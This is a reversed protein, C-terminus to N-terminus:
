PVADLWERLTTHHAVPAGAALERRLEGLLGSREALVSLQEHRASVFADDGLEPFRSVTGGLAERVCDEVPRRDISMSSEVIALLVAADVDADCAEPLGLQLTGQDREARTVVGVVRRTGRASAVAAGLLTFVHQTGRKYEPYRAAITVEARLAQQRERVAVAIRRALHEAKFGRKGLVV